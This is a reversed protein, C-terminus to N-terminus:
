GGLRGKRERCILEGNTAEILKVTLKFIKSSFMEEQCGAALNM